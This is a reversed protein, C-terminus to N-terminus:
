ARTTHTKATFLHKKAEHTNWNLVSVSLEKNLQIPIINLENFVRLFVSKRQGHQPTIEKNAEYKTFNM